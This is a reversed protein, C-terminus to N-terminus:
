QKWVLMLLRNIIVTIGYIWALQPKGAFYLAIAPLLFVIIELFLHVPMSLKVIANPSGFIGWIAAITKLIIGNGIYFGWYGIAVLACIELLFRLGLNMNQLISM